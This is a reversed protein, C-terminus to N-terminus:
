KNNLNQYDISIIKLSKISNIRIRKLDLERMGLGTAVLGLSILAARQDIIPTESLIVNNVTNLSFFGVGAIYFASEFTNVLHNHKRLRIRKLQSLYLESNDDFLIISDQMHIIKKVTYFRQGKLKYEFLEGKFVDYSRTEGFKDYSIRLFTQGFLSTCFFMKVILVLSLAVKM